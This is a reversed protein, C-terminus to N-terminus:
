RTNRMDYFSAIIVIAFTLLGIIFGGIVIYQLIALVVDLIM